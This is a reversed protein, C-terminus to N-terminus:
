SKIVDTVTHYAELADQMVYCALLEDAIEEIYHEVQDYPLSTDGTTLSSYLRELKERASVGRELSTRLYEAEAPDSDIKEWNLEVPQKRAVEKIESLTYM